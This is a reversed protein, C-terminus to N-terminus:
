CQRRYPLPQVRVGNYLFQFLIRRGCLNCTCRTSRSFVCRNTKDIAQGQARNARIEIRYAEYFHVFSYLALALLVIQWVYRWFGFLSKFLIVWGVVLAPVAASFLREAKGPFTGPRLEPTAVMAITGTGLIALILGYLSEKSKLLNSEKSVRNVIIVLFFSAMSFLPVLLWPYERPAKILRIVNEVIGTAREQIIVEM